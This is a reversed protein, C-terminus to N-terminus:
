AADDRKFQFVLPDVYEGAPVIKYIRPVRHKMGLSTLNRVPLDLTWGFYTRMGTAAEYAFQQLTAMGGKLRVVVFGAYRDGLVYVEDNVSLNENM